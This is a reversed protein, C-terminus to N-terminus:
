ITIKKLQINYSEQAWNTFDQADELIVSPVTYYSPLPTKNKFIKIPEEGADIYKKKNTDDIKLAVVNNYILGFMLGKYYLGIGGFIRKTYVDSWQQLQDLVYTLFDESTTM